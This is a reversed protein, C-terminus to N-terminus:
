HLCNVLSIGGIKLEGWEDNLFRKWYRLVL